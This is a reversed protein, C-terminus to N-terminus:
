EERLALIPDVRTARRAPVYSAVIAAAALLAAVVAITAPDGPKIGYLQTDMLRTLFVAGIGGLLLGVGVLKGSERLIM